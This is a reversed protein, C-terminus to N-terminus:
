ELSRRKGKYSSSSSLWYQGTLELQIGFSSLNSNLNTDPANTGNLEKDLNSFDTKAFNFQYYPRLIMGVPSKKGTVQFNFAGSIGAHFDSSVEYFGTQENRNKVVDTLDSNKTLQKLTGFTGFVMIGLKIPVSQKYKKSAYIFNYGVGIKFSNNRLQVTQKLPSPTETEESFINKVEGSASGYGLTWNVEVPIMGNLLAVGAALSPGILLKPSNMETAVLSNDGHNSGRTLNYRKVVYDLEGSFFLQVDMGGGVYTYGQGIGTLSCCILLLVICAYREM